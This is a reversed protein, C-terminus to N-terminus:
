RETTAQAAWVRQASPNPQLYAAFYAAFGTDGGAGTACPGFKLNLFKTSGLPNSGRVKQIGHERYLTWWREGSDNELESGIAIVPSEDALTWQLGALLATM